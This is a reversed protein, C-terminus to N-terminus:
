KVTEVVFPQKERRVVRVIQAIAVHDKTPDKELITEAHAIALALTPKTWRGYGVQSSGSINLPRDEADQEAFSTVNAAAVYFKNRVKMPKKEKVVLTWNADLPAHPDDIIIQDPALGTYGWDVGEYRAPPKVKVFTPAFGACKALENMTKAQNYDRKILDELHFRGSVTVVPATDQQLTVNYRPGMWEQTTQVHTVRGTIAINKDGDPFDLTIREGSLVAACYKANRTQFNVTLRMPGPLGSLNPVHSSVNIDFM